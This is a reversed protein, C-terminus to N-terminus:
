ERYGQLSDLLKMLFYQNYYYQHLQRNLRQVEYYYIFSASIISAGFIAASAEKDIKNIVEAVEQASAKGEKAVAKSATEGAEKIANKTVKEAAQAANEVVKKGVAM